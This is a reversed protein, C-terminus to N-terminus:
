VIEFFHKLSKIFMLELNNIKKLSISQQSRLVNQNNIYYQLSTLADEMSQERANIIFCYDLSNYLGEFKRSYSIPITVINTSFAAITSHMRAGIFIDMNAIYSKAEIPNNFSPACILKYENSLQLCIEFDDDHKLSETAIVHPILHIEYDLKLLQDIVERMFNQYDFKLNFQNNNSFGGKWLLGSINLGIKKGVGLKYLDKNYPLLFALDTVTVPERSAIETAYDSSLEDRSYVLASKKMINVARKKIASNEFPGITQPALILPKKLLLVIEKYLTTRRVFKLDYLDSFNDGYTCDFVYDCKQINMIASLYLDAKSFESGQFAINPFNSEIKGLEKGCLSIITLNKEFIQSLVSVLSYTLAECGKNSDSFPFGLLGIIM